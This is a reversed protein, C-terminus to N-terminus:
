NQNNAKLARWEAGTIPTFTYADNFLQYCAEIDQAEYADRIATEANRLVSNPIYAITDRLNPTDLNYHVFIVDIAEIWNGLFGIQLNGDLSIVDTAWMLLKPPESITDRQEKIFSRGWLVGTSDLLSIETTQKVIELASLHLPNDSSVRMAPSKQWGNVAPKINITAMPDIKFEKAVPEKECGAFLLAAFLFYFLHKM